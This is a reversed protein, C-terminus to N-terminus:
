RHPRLVMPILAEVGRSKSPLERPAPRLRHGFESAVFPTTIKQDDTDHTRRKIMRHRSLIKLSEKCKKNKPNESKRINDYTIVRIM